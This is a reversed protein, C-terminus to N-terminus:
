KIQEIFEKLRIFLKKMLLGSINEMYIPLDEHLDMHFNYSIAIDHPNSINVVLSTNNSYIWECNVPVDQTLPISKSNFIITNNEIRQEILTHMYKQSIGIEAGFPKFIFLISRKNKSFINTVLIRELVDTNLKSMLTYIDFNILNPIIIRPNSINLHLSFQSYDSKYLNINHKKCIINEQIVQEM